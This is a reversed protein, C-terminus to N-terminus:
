KGIEVLASFAGAVSATITAGLRDRNKLRSLQQGLMVQLNAEGHMQIDQTIAVAAHKEDKGTAFVTATREPLLYFKPVPMQAQCTLDQVLRYLWPVDDPQIEKAGYIRLIIKDIFWYNIGHGVLAIMLAILAGDVGGLVKGVKVAIVTLFTMLFTMKLANM